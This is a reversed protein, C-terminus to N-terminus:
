PAVSRIQGPMLQLDTKHCAETPTGKLLAAMVPPMNAAFRDVAKLTQRPILDFRSLNEYTATRVGPRSEM